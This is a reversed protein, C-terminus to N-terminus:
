TQVPVDTRRNLLERIHKVRAEMYINQSNGIHLISSSSFGIVNLYNLKIVPNLHRSLYTINETVPILPIPESFIPFSSFSGESGYLIEAERQDALARSLGNIICSDGVQLISSYSAVKIDMQNVYSTRQLM